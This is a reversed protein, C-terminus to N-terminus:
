LFITRTCTGRVQTGRVAYGRVSRIGIYARGTTFSRARTTSNSFCARTTVASVPAPTDAADPMGVNRPTSPSHFVCRASVSAVGSAKALSGRSTQSHYSQRRWIMRSACGFAACSTSARQVRSRGPKVNIVCFTRRRLIARKARKSRLVLRRWLTTQSALRLRERLSRKASTPEAFTEIRLDDIAGVARGRALHEQRDARRRDDVGGGPEHMLRLAAARQGHLDIEIRGRGGIRHVDREAPFRFLDEALQLFVHRTHKESDRFVYGVHKEELFVPRARFTPRPVHGQHLRRPGDSQFVQHVARQLRGLARLAHHTELRAPVDAAIELDSGVGFGGAEFSAHWELERGPRHWGVGVLPDWMGPKGEIRPLDGLVIDYNLALRRVGGTVFFDGAVRRGVRGEFAIIDLDVTLFPLELRDGGLAAWVGFGEIRWPGNAFTVGGLFAGDFRGDLIDGAGGGDGDAPPVVVDIDFFLPIWVFLPYVTIDWGGTRVLTTQAGAPAAVAAVFTLALVTVRFGPM